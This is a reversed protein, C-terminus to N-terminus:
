LLGRKRYEERKSTYIWVSAGDKLQVKCRSGLKKEEEEFQRELTSLEEKSLNLNQNDIRITKHLIIPYDGKTYHKIKRTAKRIVQIIREETVTYKESIESISYKKSNTIGLFLRIIESERPALRVEIGEIITSIDIMNLENRLQEDM